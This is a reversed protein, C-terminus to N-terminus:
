SRRLVEFQLGVADLDLGSASRRLREHLDGVFMLKGIHRIAAQPQCDESDVLHLERVAARQGFEDGLDGIQEFSGFGRGDHIPVQMQGIDTEVDQMVIRRPSPDDRRRFEM